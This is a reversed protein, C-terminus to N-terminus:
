ATVSVRANKGSRAATMTLVVNRGETFDSATIRATASLAERTFIENGRRVYLKDAFAIEDGSQECVSTDSLNGVVYLRREGQVDALMLRGSLSLCEGPAASQVDPSVMLRTGAPTRVVFLGGSKALLDRVGGDAIVSSFMQEGTTTSFLGARTESLGFVRGRCPQIAFCETPVDYITDGGPLGVGKMRGGALVHLTREIGISTLAVGEAPSSSRYLTEGGKGALVGSTAAIAYTGDKAVSVDKIGTMSRTAITRGRELLAFDRDTWLALREGFAAMHGSHEGFFAEPALSTPSIIVDVDSPRGGEAYEADDVSMVYPESPSAEKDLTVTVQETVTEVAAARVALAPSGNLELVFSPSDAASSIECGDAGWAVTAPFSEGGASVTFTADSWSARGTVLAFMEENDLWGEPADFAVAVGVLTGNEYSTGSVAGTVFPTGGEEAALGVATVRRGNLESAELRATFQAWLVGGRASAQVVPTKYITTGGTLVAAIRAAFKGGSAMCETISM